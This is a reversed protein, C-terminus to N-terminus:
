RQEHRAEAYIWHYGGVTKAKGKVCKCISSFDIGLDEGAEHATRYIKNLEVCM